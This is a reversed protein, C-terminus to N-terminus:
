AVLNGKGIVKGEGRDDYQIVDKASKFENAFFLKANRYLDDKKVSSDMQVVEAWEYQGEAKPLASYASRIEDESPDKQKQSFCIGPLLLLSIFIKM